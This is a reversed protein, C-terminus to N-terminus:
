EYGDQHAVFKATMLLHKTMGLLPAYSDIKPLVSVPVVEELCLVSDLFPSGNLYSLPHGVILYVSGSLYWIILFTVARPM